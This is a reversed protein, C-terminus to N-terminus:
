MKSFNHIVSTQRIQKTNKEIVRITAKIGRAPFPYPPATEAEGDDDVGNLNDNDLGDRGEDILNDSVMDQNIGDTEYHPTWTCYTAFGWPMGAAAGAPREAPATTFQPSTLAFGGATAFDNGLALDVFGGHAVGTAGGAYGVDSPNVAINGSSEILADPSYIQLDFAAVDTLVIEDGSQDVDLSTGNFNAVGMKTVGLRLANATNQPDFEFPFTGSNHAFRFERRSLDQLSNAVITDRSGDDDTDIWRASIDNEIFFEQAAALGTATSEEGTDYPLDFGTGAAIGNLNPSILLVRRNVSVSENFDLNSDGDLDNLQLFWVVEAYESQIITNGFRGRFRELSRTTFAMIDDIDGVYDDVDDAYNGGYGAVNPNLVSDSDDRTGEVYEFYGDPIDQTHPRVDVTIGALDRRLLQEANRLRNALELIARGEAIEGSAFKFAQAMAGLVILTMTLAILIEILTLGMRRRVLSSSALSAPNMEPYQLCHTQRGTSTTM